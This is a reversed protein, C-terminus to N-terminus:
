KNAVPLSASGILSTVSRQLLGMGRAWMSGLGGPTVSIASLFKLNGCRHQKLSVDEPTHRVAQAQVNGSTEFSEVAKMKLTFYGYFRVSMVVNRFTPLRGDTSVSKFRSCVSAAGNYETALIETCSVSSLYNSM